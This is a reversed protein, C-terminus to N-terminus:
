IGNEVSIFYKKNTKEESKSEIKNTKNLPFRFSKNRWGCRRKTKLQKKKWKVSKVNTKLKFINQKWYMEFSLENRYGALIDLKLEQWNWNMKQQKRFIKIYELKLKLEM